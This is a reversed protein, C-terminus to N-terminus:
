LRAYAVIIAGHLCAMGVLRATIRHSVYHDFSQWRMLVGVVDLGVLAPVAYGIPISMMPLFILSVSSTPFLIATATLCSYLAGSAGLSLSTTMAGFKFLHGSLSAFAGGALYLTLFQERGMASHLSKGFSWLAVNNFLFHWLEALGRLTLGVPWPPAVLL